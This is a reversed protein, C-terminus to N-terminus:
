WTNQCRARRGTPACSGPPAQGTPGDRPAPTGPHRGDEAPSQARYAAPTWRAGPARLVCCEYARRVEVTNRFRFFVITKGEDRMRGAIEYMRDVVANYDCRFSYFDALYRYESFAASLDDEREMLIEALRLQAKPAEASAPWERM